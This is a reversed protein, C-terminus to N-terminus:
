VVGGDWSSPGREKTPQLGHTPVSCEHRTSCSNVEGETRAPRRHASLGCLVIQLIAAVQGDMMKPNPLTKSEEILWQALEGSNMKYLVRRGEKKMMRRRPTQMAM